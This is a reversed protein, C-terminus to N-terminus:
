DYRFWCASDSKFDMLKILLSWKDWQRFFIGRYKKLRVGDSFFYEGPAETTGAMLGGMMATSAGLSLAKIIHGANQIGGDAVVPVDYRRAYDSVQLSISVNKLLSFLASCTTSFGSLTLLLFLGLM